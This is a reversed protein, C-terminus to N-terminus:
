ASGQANQAKRMRKRLTDPKIGMAKASAAVSEAQPGRKMPAAHRRKRRNYNWIEQMIAKHQEPTVDAARLQWLELELKVSEKLGLLRGLQANTRREHRGRDLAIQAGTEIQELWHPLLDRPSDFLRKRGYCIAVAACPEPWQIPQKWGDAFYLGPEFALLENTIAEGLAEYFVKGGTYWRYAALRRMDNVRKLLRLFEGVRYASLEHPLGVIAPRKAVQATHQFASNQQVTM